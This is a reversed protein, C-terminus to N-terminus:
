MWVPGTPRRWTMTKGVCCLRWRQQRTVRVPEQLSVADILETLEGVVRTGQRLTSIPTCASCLVDDYVEAQTTILAHDTTVAELAARGVATAIPQAARFHDVITIWHVRHDLSPM